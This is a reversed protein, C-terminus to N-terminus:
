LATRPANAADADADADAHDTNSYNLNATKYTYYQTPDSVHKKSYWQRTPASMPGADEMLAIGEKM